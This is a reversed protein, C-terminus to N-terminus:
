GAGEAQHSQKAHNCSHRTAGPKAYAAARHLFFHNPRTTACVVGLTHILKYYEPRGRPRLLTRSAEAAKVARTGTSTLRQAITINTDISPCLLISLFFRLGVRCGGEERRSWPGLLVQTVWDQLLWSSCHMHGAIGHYLPRSVAAIASSVCGEGSDTGFRVGLVMMSFWYCCARTSEDRAAASTLRLEPERSARCMRKSRSSWARCSM